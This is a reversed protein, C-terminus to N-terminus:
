QSPWDLTRQRESRFNLTARARGLVTLWTLRIGTFLNRCCPLYTLLYTLLYFSRNFHGFIVVTV